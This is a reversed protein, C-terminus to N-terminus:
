VRLNAYLNSFRERLSVGLSSCPLVDDSAPVITPSLWASADTFERALADLRLLIVDTARSSPTERCYPIPPTYTGAQGSFWARPSRSRAVGDLPAWRNFAACCLRHSRLVALMLPRPQAIPTAKIGVRLRFGGRRGTWSGAFHRTIGELSWQM